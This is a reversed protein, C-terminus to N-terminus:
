PKVKLGLSQCYDVLSTWRSQAIDHLVSMDMRQYEHIAVNRFGTMAAMARLTDADIMKADHLLRFAETSSQPMGLRERAVIHMALDIAAQCAREINLTLADIHTYNDLDPNAQYEEQMRRLSREIIAAKNLSINDPPTSM